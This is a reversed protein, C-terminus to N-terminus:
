AVTKRRVLAALFADPDDRVRDLLRCALPSPHRIGAEWHAVLIPSVALLHAFLAQSAGLAQRLARIQRPGYGSPEPIEIQRMTLKSSDASVIADRLERLGELLEEGAKNGRTRSRRAKKVTSAM